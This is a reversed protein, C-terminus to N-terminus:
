LGRRHWIEEIVEEEEKGFYKKSIEIYVESAVGRLAISIAHLYDDDLPLYEGIKLNNPKRLTIYEQNVKGGNHVILNRILEVEKITARDEDSFEIELNFDEIFMDLQKELPVWGMDRVFREVLIDILEDWGHCSLITEWEVTKKRKMADPCAYCIARLSDAMIGEFNSHHMVLEQFHHIKRFDIDEIKMGRKVILTYLVFVTDLLYPPVDARDTEINGTKADANKEIKKQSVNKEVSEAREIYDIITGAIEGLKTFVPVALNKPLGKPFGKLTESSILSILRTQTVSLEYNLYNERYDEWKM